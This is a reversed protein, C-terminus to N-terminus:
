VEWCCRSLVSSRYLELLCFNCKVLFVLKELGCYCFQFFEILKLIYVDICKYYFLKFFEFKCLWVVIVYDYRM